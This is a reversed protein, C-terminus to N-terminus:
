LVEKLTCSSKGNLLLEALAEAIRLEPVLEAVWLWQGNPNIELFVHRGDPAVILNIAAYTLGYGRVLAMCREAIQIPLSGRKYPITVDYHRWDVTTRAHQQSHIESDVAFLYTVASACRECRRIGYRDRVRISRWADM